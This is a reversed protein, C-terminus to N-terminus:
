TLLLHRGVVASGLGHPDILSGPVSEAALWSLVDLLRQNQM